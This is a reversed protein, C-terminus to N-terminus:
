EYKLIIDCSENKQKVFKSKKINPIWLIQDSADVVIPWKDRESIAIKNDIFIDKIRRHGSNKLAIKDGHKRTRISIPLLIESSKLRCIDNGNSEAQEVKKITKGNPLFAKEIMEIEYSLAEEPLKGIILKDYEKLVKLENPLMIYSNAKNSRALNIINEAHVDGILILDDHYIEELIYYIVKLKIIYDLNNFKYISIEHEGGLNKIVKATEKDVFADYEELTKSFKIFKEHVNKDESKLFPVINKRYRNRTYKDSENSKDVAFVIKKKNIYEMIEEKTTEYLPRVLKYSDRDVVKAFGSYGKITSGRVMRMLITEVLDDAHHATFLYKASYKKVIKDFFDYRINRAENQFNDDGYKEIKMTEFFIDKMQCYNELMKEEANSVKRVNHNIHACVIKIQRKKSISKLLDLLAMSDPGGSVGVVVTENYLNLENELFDLAKQM